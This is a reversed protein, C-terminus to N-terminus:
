SFIGSGSSSSFSMSSRAKPRVSVLLSPQWILTVGSSFPITTFSGDMVLFKCALSKLDHGPHTLASIIIDTPAGAQNEGVAFASAAGLIDPTLALDHM